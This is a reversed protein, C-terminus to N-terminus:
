RAWMGDGYSYFRYGATLAEAYAAMTRERGLLASVLMLLTSRPLHFNTLLQDVIEFRWGPRIFLRTEGAGPVLEGHAAFVGELTRTVTTGVAVIPRGEARAAGVATCAAESVVYREAHMDHADLSDARVPLFTGPGVHLTVRATECGRAELQALLEATFHLGATPAAVSGPHEAYVTQYRAKDDADPGEDRAIYPPLPLEGHADLFEWLPGASEPLKVLYLGAGLVEEVVLHHGGVDVSTGARIAKSARGMARILAPRGAESGLVLLEVRGGTPKHGLLRAPVVRTDNLVFLEDGRVLEPLAAYQHHSFPAGAIDALLLKAAQREPAPRQAIHEPPLVYDFDEARQTSAASM